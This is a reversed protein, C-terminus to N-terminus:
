FPSAAMAKREISAAYLPTELRNHVTVAEQLSAAVQEFDQGAATLMDVFARTPYSIM